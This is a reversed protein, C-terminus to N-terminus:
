EAARTASNAFLLRPSVMLKVWTELVMSLSRGRGSPIGVKPKSVARDSPVCITDFRM